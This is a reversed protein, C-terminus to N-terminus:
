EGKVYGPNRKRYAELTADEGKYDGYERDILVRDQYRTREQSDTMFQVKMACGSLMIWLIIAGIPLLLPAFARVDERHVRLM